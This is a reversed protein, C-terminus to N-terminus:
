FIPHLLNRVSGKRKEGSPLVQHTSRGRQWSYQCIIDEVLRTRSGLPYFLIRHETFEEEPHFWPHDHKGSYIPQGRLYLHSGWMPDVGNLAKLLARSSIWLVAENTRIRLWLQKVGCQYAEQLVLICYCLQSINFVTRPRRTVTDDAHYADVKAKLFFFLEQPQPM